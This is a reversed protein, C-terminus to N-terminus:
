RQIDEKQLQILLKSEEEISIFHEQSIPKGMHLLKLIEFICDSEIFIHYSNQPLKLLFSYIKLFQQTKGCSALSDLM